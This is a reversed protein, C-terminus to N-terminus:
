DEKKELVSEPLTPESKSVNDILMKVRTLFVDAPVRYEKSKILESDIETPQLILM